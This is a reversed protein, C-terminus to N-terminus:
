SIARGLLPDEVGDAVFAVFRARAVFPDDSFLELLPTDDLFRPKAALGVTARYSSWPWEAPGSVLGARVPNLVVYRSATLLHEDSEILVAGYRGEFFHGVRGHRRNFARAFATGFWHMGVALNPERTQLMFHAHNSMVCFACVRWECRKAATAFTWLLLRRDGDALFRWERNNVRVTVHFVGGAVEIRPKRPM